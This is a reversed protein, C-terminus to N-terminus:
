FGEWASQSYNNDTQGIRSVLVVVETAWNILSYKYPAVFPVDESLSEWFCLNQKEEKWTREAEQQTFSSWVVVPQQATITTNIIRYSRIKPDHRSKDGSRCIDIYELM